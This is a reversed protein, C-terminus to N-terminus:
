SKKSGREDVWLAAALGAFVGLLAFATLVQIASPGAPSGAAEPPDVVRISFAHLTGGAAKLKAALGEIDSLGRALGDMEEALKVMDPSLRTNKLRLDVARKSEQFHKAQENLRVVKKFYPVAPFKASLVEVLADFVKKTKGIDEAPVFASVRLLQTYHLVKTRLKPLQEDEKLGARQRIENDFAGIEMAQAVTWTLHETEPGMTSLRVEALMSVEYVKPTLFVVAAGSLLSAFFVATMLAARARILDLLRSSRM